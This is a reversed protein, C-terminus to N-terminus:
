SAVGPWQDDSATVDVVVGDPDEVKFSESPLQGPVPPAGGDVGDWVIPFGMAECRRVTAALDDVKVGIHMYALLGSVNPPREPGRHQFLRFNHHGDSLDYCEEMTSVVQLGLTDRWFRVSEEVDSACLGVHVLRAETM